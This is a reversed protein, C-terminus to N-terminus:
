RVVITVVVVIIVIVIIIIVVVIIVIIIVIIIIVIVVVIISRGYDGQYAAISISEVPSEIHKFSSLNFHQFSRVQRGNRGIGVPIKNEIFQMGPLFRGEDTFM